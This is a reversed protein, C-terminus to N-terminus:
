KNESKVNSVELLDDVDERSPFGKMKWIPKPNKIQKQILDKTEESGSVVQTVISDNIKSLKELDKKARSRYEPMSLLNIFDQKTAVIEPYGHM